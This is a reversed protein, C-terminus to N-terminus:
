RDRPAEYMATANLNEDMLVLLVADFEKGTDISGMRQTTRAGPLMCRAKIQLRREVGNVVEKADWGATRAPALQLKLIRAAEYEAIEGTLGLPRLTLARYRQAVKKAQALLEMVAAEHKEITEM